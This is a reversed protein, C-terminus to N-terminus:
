SRWKKRCCTSAVPHRLLGDPESTGAIGARRPHRALGRTVTWTFLPLGLDRTAALLLSEVREEEVTEVVLLPNQSVILTKLDHVSTTPPVM